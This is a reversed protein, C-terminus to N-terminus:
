ERAAEGGGILEVVAARGAQSTSKEMRNFIEIEKAPTCLGARWLLACTWTVGALM